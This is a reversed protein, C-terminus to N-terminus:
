VKIGKMLKWDKVFEKDKRLTEAAEHTRIYEWSALRQTYTIGLIDICQLNYDYVFYYNDSGFVFRNKGENVINIKERVRTKAQRRLDEQVALSSTEFSNGRKAKAVSYYSSTSVSGSNSLLICDKIPFVPEIEPELNKLIKKGVERVDDLTSRQAAVDKQDCIRYLDICAKEAESLESEKM